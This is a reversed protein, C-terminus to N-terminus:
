GAVTPTAQRTRQGPGPQADAPRRVRSVPVV